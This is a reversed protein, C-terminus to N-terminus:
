FFIVFFLFDDQAKILDEHLIGCIFIISKSNKANKMIKWMISSM